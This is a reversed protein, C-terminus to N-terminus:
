EKVLKNVYVSKDTEVSLIYLGSSLSSLDANFSNENIDAKLKLRKGKLDAVFINKVKEGAPITVTVNDKFPNPSAKLATISQKPETISNLTKKTSLIFLGNQMDSALIISDKYGPSQFFPYAGWNGMYPDGTYTSGNQPYTDFYAEKVPFLPDTIDFVHLGAKYYAIILHNNVIYPNHATAGLETKYDNYAKINSFDSIDIIKFSKGEPVEDCFVLTKGDPTIASSHNYGNDPYNTYSGLETFKNAVSDYRYIYLGAYGCSAYVTDNKVLMDHVVGGPVTYDSDLARLLVPAGPNALSYVAMSFKSNDTKTVYGCYMKSGEIYLTHSRSFLTDSDYVKHVSDPLYSLDIIQLSNPAQDDSVAYLYNKYTKYERWLCQARRGSVFDKVIPSLSLDSIDLIYTGTSSGIIAYQKNNQEYGWVSNYKSQHQPEAPVSPDYWNAILSMNKSTYQALTVSSCLLLVSLALFLNKM